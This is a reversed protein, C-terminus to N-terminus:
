GHAGGSGTIEPQGLRGDRRPPLGSGGRGKAALRTSGTGIGGSRTSALLERAHIRAAASDPQGSLMRALEIVRAEGEVREVTALTRGGIEAKDVSIQSDAFAAVQALHTVVLIQRERSLAALARGVAIAAEGGIGADVEDFVLTPPGSSLVLRLALMTRALEGGSAIKALPLPPEGPNAALLFEVESGDGEDPVTVTLSARDLGLEALRARVARALLPAARRRADGLERSATAARQALDLRAASLEVLREETTELEDRRARIAQAAALVEPLGGGYKRGLDRLLQRRARLNALREPDDELGEGRSRLEAVVDEIEIAAAAIREALDALGRHVRLGVSARGLSELVDESLRSREREAVARLEEARSLSEEEAAIVQEEDESTIGAAEIEGLQFNLFDAERRRKTADGGLGALDADIRRLEGLLGRLTATDSGAYLDLADRQGAQSLLGYHGHQSYLDALERSVEALQGAPVGRDDVYARSRGSRPVVRALVIEKADLESSVGPTAFRGEVRAEPSGHRVIAPDPRAGLLLELAGVLLTKGAGTEGTLATMGPGLVLDAEAIVGVNTVRLEVLM